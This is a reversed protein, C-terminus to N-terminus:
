TKKRKAEIGSTDEKNPVLVPDDANKGPGVIDRTKLTRLKDSKDKLFQFM